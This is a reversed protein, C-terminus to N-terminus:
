NLSRIEKHLILNLFRMIKKGGYNLFRKYWVPRVGFVNQHLVCCLPDEISSPWQKPVLPCEVLPHIKKLCSETQANTADKDFGIHEVMSWPPRMCLGHKFIHWYLFRVAWINKKVEEKAMDPLDAGYQYIDIGNKECTKMLSLADCENIGTWARKWTGWVWCEARGDFYPQNTVNKPTILPHTWGTVSMVRIDDMYYKLAACLYEYTGPVCILDDEFVIVMEEHKLVDTVGSLISKGLGFNTDREIIIAECWDIEHLIARVKRVSSEKEPTKPGDSFIYLRPINNMKLCELTRHLHDPRAYTFLIVPIESTMIGM